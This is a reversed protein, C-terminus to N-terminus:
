SSPTTFWTALPMLARRVGPVRRALKEDLLTWAERHYRATDGTTYKIRYVTADKCHYRTRLWFVYAILRSVSRRKPMALDIVITSLFSIEMTACIALAGEMRTRAAACARSAGSTTWLASKQKGAADDEGGYMKECTQVLQYFSLIMLPVLAPTANSRPTTTANSLALSAYVCLQFGNTGTQERAVRWAERADLSRLSPAMTYAIRYAFAAVSAAFSLLVFGDARGRLWSTRPAVSSAFALAGSALTTACALTFVVTRFDWARTTM